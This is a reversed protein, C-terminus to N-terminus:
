CIPPLAIACPIFRRLSASVPKKKAYQFTRQIAQVRIPQDPRKGPFLWMKPRYVKYYNRLNKLLTDSLLTYRDKKGRGAGGSDLM